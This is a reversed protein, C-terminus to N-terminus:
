LPLILYIFIFGVLSKCITFASFLKQCFGLAEKRAQSRAVVNKLYKNYAQDTKWRGIIKVKADDIDAMQLLSPLSSRLGHTSHRQIISLPVMSLQLASKWHRTFSDHTLSSGSPLLLLPLNRDVTILSRFRLYNTLAAIPCFGPYDALPIYEVIDGHYNKVKPNKIWLKLTGDPHFKTDALCLDKTIDFEAVSEPLLETARLMGWFYLLTAAWVAAKLTNSVKMHQLGSCILKLTSFTFPLKFGQQANKLVALSGNSDGRLCLSIIPKYSVTLNNMESWRSFASMHQAVTSPALGLGLLHDLITISDFHHPNRFPDRGGCATVFKNYSGLLRAQSNSAFAQQLAKSVNSPLGPLIHEAMLQNESYKHKKSPKPLRIFKRKGSCAADNVSDPVSPASASIAQAPALAASVQSSSPLVGSVSPVSPVSIAPPASALTVAQARSLPPPVTNLMTESYSPPLPHDMLRAVHARGVTVMYIEGDLKIRLTSQGENACFQTIPFVVAESFLSPPAPHKSVRAHALWELFDRSWSASASEILCKTVAFRIASDSVSPPMPTLPRLTPMIELQFGENHSVPVDCAFICVPMAKVTKAWSSKNAQALNFNDFELIAELILQYEGKTARSFRLRVLVYALSFAEAMNDPYTLQCDVLKIWASVPSNQLFTFQAPDFALILNQDAMSDEYNPLTQFVHMGIVWNDIKGGLIFQYSQFGAETFALHVSVMGPYCDDLTEQQHLFEAVEVPSAFVLKQINAPTLTRM